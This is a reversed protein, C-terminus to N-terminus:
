AGAGTLPRVDLQRHFWFEYGDAGNMAVNLAPQYLPIRPLDEIVIEFMQKILGAYEPDDMPMHLTQDTLEHVRPNDYASSNFLRDKQYAWFFYYCPTNLWGGFNELHMDLTKDVLAVTRWNAGPFATSEHRQHRDAGDSGSYALAAPEMWSVLDLSISLTVDFDTLSVPNRWISARWNWTPTM